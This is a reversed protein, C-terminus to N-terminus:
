YKGCKSSLRAVARALRRLSQEPPPPSYQKFFESFFSFFFFMYIRSVWHHCPMRAHHHNTQTIKVALIDTDSTQGM